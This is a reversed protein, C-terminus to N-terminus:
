RFFGASNTLLAHWLVRGTRPERAVTLLGNPDDACSVFLTEDVAGSEAYPCWPISWLLEGGPYALARLRNGACSTGDYVFSVGPSTSPGASPFHWLAARSGFRGQGFGPLYTVASRPLRRGDSLSFASQEGDFGQVLLREQLVFAEVGPAAVRWLVAGSQPAFAWVEQESRAIVRARDAHVVERADLENNWLTRGSALDCARVSGAARGYLVDDVVQPRYSYDQECQLRRQQRGTARDLEQLEHGMPVFVSKPTIVPYRPSPARSTAVIGTLGLGAATTAALRQWARAAQAPQLRVGFLRYSLALMPLALLDTPDSVVQWTAGFWAGLACWAAAVAPSLKLLAFAVALAVHALSFAWRRRPALVAALVVPAMLLGSFDSLKGTLVGALVGAGKLYHDNVLLIALAAWWAPHLLAVRASWGQALQQKALAVSTVGAV